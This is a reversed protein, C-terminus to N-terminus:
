ELSWSQIWIWSGRGLSYRCPLCSRTASKRDWSRECSGQLLLARFSRPNRCKSSMAAMDLEDASSGRNIKIQQSIECKMERHTHISIYIICMCMVICMKASRPVRFIAWDQLLELLTTATAGIVQHVTSKSPMDLGELYRCFPQCKMSIYSHYQKHVIYTCNYMCVYM